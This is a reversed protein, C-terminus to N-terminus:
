AGRRTLRGRQIEQDLPPLAPPGPEFASGEAATLGKRAGPQHDPGDGARFHGQFAWGAGADEGRIGQM